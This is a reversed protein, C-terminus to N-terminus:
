EEYVLTFSCRSRVYMGGKKGPKWAPMRRLAETIEADILRDPSKEIRIDSVSGDKEVVFFVVLPSEIKKGKVEKPYRVSQLYHSFAMWGGNPHAALFDLDTPSYITDSPSVKDPSVVSSTDAPDTNGPPSPSVLFSLTIKEESSFPVPNDALTKKSQRGSCNTLLAMSLLAFFFTKTKM